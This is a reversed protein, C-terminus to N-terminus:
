EVRAVRGPLGGGGARARGVQVRQILAVDERHQVRYLAVLCAGRLQQADRPARQLPTHGFPFGQSPVGAASRAVGELPRHRSGPSAPEAADRAWPVDRWTTLWM